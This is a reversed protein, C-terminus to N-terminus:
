KLECFKTFNNQCDNALEFMVPNVTDYLNWTRLELLLAGANLLQRCIGPPNSM